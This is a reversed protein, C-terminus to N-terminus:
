IWSKKANYKERYFCSIDRPTFLIYFFICSLGSSNLIHVARTFWPFDFYVHSFNELELPDKQEKKDSKM